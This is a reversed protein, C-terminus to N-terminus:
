GLGVHGMVPGRLHSLAPPPPPPPITMDESDSRDRQYLDQQSRATAVVHANHIHQNYFPCNVSIIQPPPEADYGEDDEDYEEEASGSAVGVGAAAVMMPGEMTMVDPTSICKGGYSQAIMPHDLGTELSTDRSRKLKYELERQRREQIKGWCSVIISTCMGVVLLAFVMLILIMQDSKLIGIGKGGEFCTTNPDEDYRYKCNYDVNCKLKLDICTGDDCDFETSPNCKEKDNTRFATFLINFKFIRKSANKDIIGERVHFRINVVNGDSKQPETTTGCFRYKRKENSLVSEYIDIYNVDCDNPRTLLYDNFNVYM